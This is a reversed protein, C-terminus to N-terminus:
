FSEDYYFNIGNNAFLFVEEKSTNEDDEDELFMLYEAAREALKKRTDIEKQSLNNRRKGVIGDVMQEIINSKDHVTKM